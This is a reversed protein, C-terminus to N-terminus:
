SLQLYKHLSESHLLFCSRVSQLPVSVLTASIGPYGVVFNSNPNGVVRVFPNM